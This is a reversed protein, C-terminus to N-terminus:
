EYERTHSITETESNTGSYATVDAEAKYYGGVEADFRIEIGLSRNSSDTVSDIEVWNRGVKEYVTFTAEISTTVNHVRDVTLVASGEDGSFNIDIDIVNMYNWCPAVIDGEDVEACSINMALIMFITIALIISLFKKM